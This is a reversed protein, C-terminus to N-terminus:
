LNFPNTNNSSGNNSSSGSSGKSKTSSGPSTFGLVSVKGSTDTTVPANKLAGSAILKEATDQPISMTQTLLKALGVQDSLGLQTTDYGEILNIVKSADSLAGSQALAKYKEALDANKFAINAATTVPKINQSLIYQSAQQRQADTYAPNGNADYGIPDGVYGAALVQSVITPDQSAVQSDTIRSLSGNLATIAASQAQRQETTLTKNQTTKAQAISSDIQLQAQQPTLGGATLQALLTNNDEPSLATGDGKELTQLTTLGANYTNATNTAVASQVQENITNLQSNHAISLNTLQTNMDATANSIATDYKSGVEALYNASDSGGGEPNNTAESAQAAAIANQKDLNLQDINAQLQRQQAALDSQYQANATATADNAGQYTPVLAPNVGTTPYTVGGSNTAPVIQGSADTNYLGNNIPQNTTPTPNAYLSISSSGQSTNNNTNTTTTSSTAPANPDNPQAAKAGISVGYPTLFGTATDYVPTLSSSASNLSSNLTSAMGVGASSGFASSSAPATYGNAKTTNVANSVTSSVGPIPVMSANSSNMGTSVPAKPTVPIALNLKPPTLGNITPLTFPPNTAM